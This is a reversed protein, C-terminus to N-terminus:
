GIRKYSYLNQAFINEHTEFSSDIRFEKFPKSHKGFLYGFRPRAPKMAKMAKMAPAPSAAKMAKETKMAPAPAAPGRAAALIQQVRAGASKTRKMAKPITNFLFLLSKHFTQYRLCSTGVYECWIHTHM